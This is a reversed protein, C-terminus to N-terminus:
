HAKPCKPLRTANQDTRHGHDNQVEFMQTNAAAFLRALLQRVFKASQVKLPADRRSASENRLSLFNRAEGVAPRSVM